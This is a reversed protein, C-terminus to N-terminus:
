CLDGECRYSSLWWSSFFLRERWKQTYNMSINAHVCGVCMSEFDPFIPCFVSMEKLSSYVAADNLVHTYTFGAYNPVRLYVWCLKTCTPLGLMTQYMYTFGAYNPVRLYVWCLKNCTPLGVYNPVHLYVWCLKNCTPLGLMTQYVYTFGAYNPVHPYVWCLKTCTPLGLM